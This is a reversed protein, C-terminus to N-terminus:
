SLRVLRPLIELLVIAALPLAAVFVTASLMDKIIGIRSDFNPQVIDCVKELATNAIEASLMICVALILLIFESVTFHAFAALVLACLSVAARTRFPPDSKLVFRIGSM